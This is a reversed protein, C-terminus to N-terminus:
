IHPRKGVAPSPKRFLNQEFNLKYFQVSPKQPSPSCYFNVQMHRNSPMTQGGRADMVGLSQSGMGKLVHM